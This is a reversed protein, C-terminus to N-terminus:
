VSCIAKVGPAEGKPKVYTDVYFDQLKGTYQKVPTDMRQALLGIDGATLVSCETAPSLGMGVHPQGHMSNDMQLKNHMLEHFALHALKKAPFNDEMYVESITGKHPVNLATLGGLDGPLGEVGLGKIVSAGSNRVFYVVLDRDTIENVPCGWQTNLQFKRVVSRPSMMVRWFLNSLTDMIEELCPLDVGLDAMERDSLGLGLVLKITPTAM